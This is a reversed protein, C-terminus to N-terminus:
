IILLMSLLVLLLCMLNFISSASDTTGDDNGDQGWGIKLELAGGRVAGLFTNDDDGYTYNDTGIRNNINVIYYNYMRTRFYTVTTNATKEKYAIVLDSAPQNNGIIEGITRNLKDMHTQEIDTEFNVDGFFYGDVYYGKHDNMFKDVASKIESSLKQIVEDMLDAEGNLQPFAANVIFAIRNDSMAIGAIVAGYEHNEDFEIYNCTYIPNKSMLYLPASDEKGQIHPYPIRYKYAGVVADTINQRIEPPVGQVSLVISDGVLKSYAEKFRDLPKLESPQLNISSFVYANRKTTKISDHYYTCPDYDVKECIHSPYIEFGEYEQTYDKNFFQLKLMM